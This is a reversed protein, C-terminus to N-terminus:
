ICTTVLYSVNRSSSPIVVTDVVVTNNSNMGNVMLVFAEHWDVAPQRGFRDDNNDSLSEAIPVADRWICM